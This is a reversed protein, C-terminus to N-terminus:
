ALRETTSVAISNIHLTLNSPVKDRIQLTPMALPLSFKKKVQTSLASM